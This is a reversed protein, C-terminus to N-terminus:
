SVEKSQFEVLDLQVGPQRNSVCAISCLINSAFKRRVLAGVKTQVLNKPQSRYVCSVM